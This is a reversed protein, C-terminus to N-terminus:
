SKHRASLEEAQQKLKARREAYWEDTHELKRIHKRPESNNNAPKVSGAQDLQKVDERPGREATALRMVAPMPLSKSVDMVQEVAAWAKYEEFFRKQQFPLDDETMLKYQKWGGTRRVVDLIRQSLQPYRAKRKVKGNIVIAGHWGHEPGYNGEVDNSVYKAVFDVTLDWASRMEADLKSGEDAMALRRIESVGPLYDLERRARAFAVLLADQPIDVLDEANIRLREPTIGQGKAVAALSLQDIIWGLREARQQGLMSPRMSTESPQARQEHSGM